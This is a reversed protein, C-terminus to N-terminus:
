NKMYYHLFLLAYQQISGFYTDIFHALEPGVYRYHWSEWRYGTVDELDKPYSMSWGYRSGHKELWASQKTEAFSDDISGFDIALGLQHQSHGPRASERDAAVQGMQRVNREYVQKQYEYSRYASSAVLVVGDQQAAQAMKELAAAAQQRLQMGPRNVRYTGGGLLVMDQPEYAPDLGHEKDVLRWLYADLSTITELEERLSLPASELRDLLPQQLIEPIRAKELAGKIRLSFKTLETIPVGDKNDAGQCSVALGAM